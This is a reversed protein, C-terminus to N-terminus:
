MMGYPLTVLTRHDDIARVGAVNEALIHTARREEESAYAGWFTVIGNKVTVSSSEESLWSESRLANMIEAHIRSDDHENVPDSSRGAVLIAKVLDMRSVMGVVQGDRVVPVRRIRNRELLDIIEAVPTTETVTVVDGTMVDAVHVSHSKIYDAAVSANGEFLRRWWPRPQTDTGIEMRHLLDGESVIGRLVGNDLVPVGSIGHSILVDAVDAVTSDLGVSVASPTMIDKAILMKNGKESVTRQGDNEATLSAQSGAYFCLADHFEKAHFAYTELDTASCSVRGISEAKRFFWPSPLGTKFSSVAVAALLPRGRGADDEMLAELLSRVVDLADVGALGVRAALNAYTAPLRMGTQRLLEQRLLVELTSNARAWPMPRGDDHLYRGTFSFVGATGGPVATRGSAKAVKDALSIIM